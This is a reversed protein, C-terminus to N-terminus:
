NWIKVKKLKEVNEQWTVLNWSWAILLAFLHVWFWGAFGYNQYIYILVLVRPVFVTCLVDGVFPTTNYPLNNTMWWFFLTLRPVFLSLILFWTGIDHTEMVKQIRNHPYDLLFGVM